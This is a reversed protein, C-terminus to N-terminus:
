KCDTIMCQPWTSEPHSTGRIAPLLHATPKALILSASVRSHFPILALRPLFHCGSPHHVSLPLPWLIPTQGAGLRSPPRGDGCLSWALGDCHCHLFLSALAHARPGIDGEDACGLALYASCPTPMPLIDQPNESGWGQDGGWGRQGVQLRRGISQHPGAQVIPFQWGAGHVEIADQSNAIYLWTICAGIHAGAGVHESHVLACGSQVHLTCGENGSWGARAEGWAWWSSLQSFPFHALDQGLSQLFQLSPCVPARSGQM